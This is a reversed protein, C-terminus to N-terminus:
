QRAAVRARALAVAEIQRARERSIGLLRGVEALSPEEELQWMCSPRGAASHHYVVPLGFRDLHGLLNRGCGLNVCPLALRLPAGVRAAEAM